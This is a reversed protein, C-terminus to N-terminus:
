EDRREPLSFELNGCRPCGFDTWHKWDEGAVMGAPLPCGRRERIDPDMATPVLKVVCPQRWHRVHGCRTCTRLYRPDDPAPPPKLPKRRRSMSVGRSDIIGWTGVPRLDTMTGNRVPGRRRDGGVGPDLEIGLAEAVLEVLEVLEVLDLAEAAAIAPL